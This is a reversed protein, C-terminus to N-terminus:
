PTQLKPEGALQFAYVMNHWRELGVSTKSMFQFGNDALMKRLSADTFMPMNCGQHTRNEKIAIVEWIYLKGNPKLNARIQQLVDAQFDFEHLSNEVIIKDFFQVLLRTDKEKGRVPIFTATHAPRNAQRYIFRAVTALKDPELWVPNLDQLYITLSDAMLSFIVERVGQGAGISAIKEGPRFDYIPQFDALLQKIAAPKANAKNQSELWDPTEQSWAKGSVLLCLCILHM